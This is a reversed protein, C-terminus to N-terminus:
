KPLDYVIDSVKEVAKELIEDHTVPKEVHKTIYPRFEQVGERSAPRHFLFKLFTELIKENINTINGSEDLDFLKHPGDLYCVNCRQVEDQDFKHKM